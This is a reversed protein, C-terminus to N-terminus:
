ADEHSVEMRVKGSKERFFAYLYAVIFISVNGIIVTTTMQSGLLVVQLLCVLSSLVSWLWLWFNSVKFKSKNWQEPLVKPLRVLCINLIISFGYNLILCFNALDGIKIGTLIPILGIVYFFTLLVWPTKTKKGIKGIWAPFWGDVCAQLLPKTVWCLTANLTTTLAFMAGGVIFFVYVWSPMIAKAVLTLPKNAVQDIPLVGAAVFGMLAYVVAVILTSAILVFPIDKTPNKAEAGFNIVVAAGGTAFTLLAAASLLGSIGHPLFNSSSFFDPSIKTVGFGVFAALALAMLIVMANELRAANKVGFLNVLYFFTLMIVSILMPNAGPVLALFYDAFSLAYMALSINAIAYIIMYMGAWRKGMLLSAQTYQGGRLRVTGAIFLQPVTLIIIFIASIMFAFPVSKGTMGIAVGTLAMIGAGIIQGGAISMLDGRGLVRKLEKTTAQSEGDVNQTKGTSESM